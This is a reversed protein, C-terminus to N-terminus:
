FIRTFQKICSRMVVNAKTLSLGGSLQIHRCHHIHCKQLDNEAPHLRIPTSRIRSVETPSIPPTQDSRPDPRDQKSREPKSLHQQRKESKGQVYTKSSSLQLKETTASKPKLSNKIEGPPSRLLSNQLEAQNTQFKYLEYQSKKPSQRSKDPQESPRRSQEAKESSGRM